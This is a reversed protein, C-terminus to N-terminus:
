GRLIEYREKIYPELTESAGEPIKYDNLTLWTELGDSEKASLILIDYEGVTYTKLIKVGLNRGSRPVNKELHYNGSRSQIMYDAYVKPQCPNEDYYEVLRPGSYADLKDFIAQEAIRIQNKKLVEPVPVVMAFDKLDGQFDSSM